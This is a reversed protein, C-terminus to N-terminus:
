GHRVERRPKWKRELDLVYKELTKQRFLVRWGMRVRPIDSHDLTNIHVGLYAAAERRSLLPNGPSTRNVLNELAAAELYFLPTRAVV